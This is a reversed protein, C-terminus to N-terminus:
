RVQLYRFLMETKADFVEAREHVANVHKNTHVEDFVDVNVNQACSMFVHVKFCGMFEATSIFEAM